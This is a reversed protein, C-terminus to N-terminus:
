ITLASSLSGTCTEASVKKKGTGHPQPKQKLNREKTKRRCEDKKLTVEM